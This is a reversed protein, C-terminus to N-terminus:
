RLEGNTTGLKARFPSKRAFDMALGL